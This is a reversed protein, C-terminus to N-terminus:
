KSIVASWSVGFGAHVGHEIPQGILGPSEPGLEGPVAAGARAAKCRRSSATTLGIM